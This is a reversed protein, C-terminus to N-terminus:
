SNFNLLKIDKFKKYALIAAQKLGYMGKVIECYVYGDENIKADLNYLERFYKTFHKKHIRLYEKEKEPLNSQLFFDKIDLSIFRAGKEADSIM